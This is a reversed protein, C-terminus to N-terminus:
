DGIKQRRVHNHELPKGVVIIYLRKTEGKRPIYCEMM